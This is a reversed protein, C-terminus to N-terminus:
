RCDLIRQALSEASFGAFVVSHVAGIRACAFMAIPLECVQNPQNTTPQAPSQVHNPPSLNLPRPLRDAPPETAGLQPAAGGGGAPPVRRSSTRGRVMPMYILVADGKRVGQGRLWNAQFFSPKAILPNPRTLHHPHLTQGAVRM